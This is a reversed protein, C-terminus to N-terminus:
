PRTIPQVQKMVAVSYKGCAHETKSLVDPGEKMFKQGKYSM